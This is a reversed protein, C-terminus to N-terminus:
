GAEEREPAALALLAVQVDWGDQVTRENVYSLFRFTTTLPVSLLFGALAFVSGGDETLQEVELHVDLLVSLGAQGLLEGLGAFLVMLLGRLQSTAIGTGSRSLLFRQARRLARLGSTGELILVEPVFCYVSAVFWPGVFTISSTLFVVFVLFRTGIFAPLRRLSTRLTAALSVEDEFLLRGAHVLFPLELLTHLALAALWVWGWALDAFHRLSVLALWSPVLLLGAISLFARQARRQCFLISLDLVDLHSRQRLVIAAGGVNM